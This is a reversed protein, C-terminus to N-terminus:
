QELLRDEDGGAHGDDDAPKEDEQGSGAPRESWALPVNPRSANGRGPVSVPEMVNSRMWSRATM